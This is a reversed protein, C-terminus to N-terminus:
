LKGVPIAAEDCYTGLAERPDRGEEIALELTRAVEGLNAARIARKVPGVAAPRMSLTRLGLAALALAQMPKGAAEGCFSLETGAATCHAIIGKLFRLFAPHLMSYLKATRENTRDAAFFFQALDNGGISIFDAERFFDEHAFALSPTELMAGIRIPGPAVDLEIRELEDLFLAKARRFEDLDAVMPFMVRLARGKSARMLAQAQMKLIVPRDLGIRIARWGLAPNAEHSQKLYPLVKDSGIDLTRFNVPLGDAKDLIHSYFSAQEERTPMAANLMFHLETRLLGVGEAGSEDLSPLDAALGGNMYLAVRVGDRSEAPLDRSAAFTAREQARLALKERYASVVDPRARVHVHGQDGNVIMEDGAELERTIGRAQVVLPIDLARAVIAAHSGIAGEEMVIGALTGRPYDMLDGPGLARAVLIAGTEPPQVGQSPGLLVRLLRKAIDDLDNLRERLYPDKARDLKARAESRATDVAAEATLGSAVSEELKRLWNRDHAFMRYTELVDRHESGEETPTDLMDDVDAQLAAMAARLRGREAGVDDAIPNPLLLKPEHLYAPGIAVGDAAGQATVHLSPRPGGDAGTGGGPLLTGAEAMEAIVMAVLGLAEIDEEAYNIARENQVVLVGLIKGLKQIPVGLFSSYKEEGTEPLYRFEPHNNAEATVVPAADRAIAGVLGEGVNLRAHHVAEPNLGRTACLELTSQGRMLYVSCVEAVMSRAILRVIQDLREQGDGPAALTERLHRLLLRPPAAGSPGARSDDSPRPPEAGWGAPTTM